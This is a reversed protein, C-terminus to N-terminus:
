FLKDYFKITHKGKPILAGDIPLSGFENVLVANKRDRFFDNSLLSTMLTTKGAGLYGTVLITKIKHM